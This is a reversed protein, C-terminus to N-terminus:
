GPPEGEIVEGDLSRILAIIEETALDIRAKETSRFVLSTGYRGLKYYPYSGIEVDPFRDQTASLGKAVAGEGLYCSIVRSLVPAGGILRHRLGGFMAQMILPVGAMVFVNGIQFGPAASIPNEILTAGEPTNAMRLRAENLHAPDYRSHLLAEAGPHRVLPVGFAKAVSESTIDDHTPGIGGTTFVYDHAPRLENVAKVIHDEIDRVVRVENLRIGLENLGKALWNINADQVRGSLVENGIIVIAATYIRSETM